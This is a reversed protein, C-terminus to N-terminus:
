AAAFAADGSAIMRRANHQIDLNTQEIVTLGEAISTQFSCLEDILSDLGEKATLRSSEMKGMVRTVELNTALRKMEACDDEFHRAQVTIAKLGALAKHQYARQQEELLRMEKDKDLRDDAAEMRFFNVVEQQVRAIGLLFQGEYITQLLKRASAVFQNMNARIEDSIGTYNNSIVGITKGSDGLRSSQVRLNLPVYKIKGYASFIEDARTLLSKAAPVLQDFRAMIPDPERNLQKNRAMIEASLATAMFAPYDEFGRQQLRQLLIAASDKPSLKQQVAAALLTRYEGEVVPLLASPKLRVSLYGGEVPTVIAFVWYYRGDKARNKVYAGIPSGQKISHWLQWFVARPMDPHRVIKHPKGLLEDWSYISIRQFVENGYEIIGSPGTRSFFLEEPRFTIEASSDATTIEFASSSKM